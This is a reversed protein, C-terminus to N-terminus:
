ADGKIGLQAWCVGVGAHVGHSGSGNVGFGTKGIEAVRCIHV